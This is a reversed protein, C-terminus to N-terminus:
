VLCGRDTQAMAIDDAYMLLSPHLEYRLQQSRKNSRFTLRISHQFELGELDGPTAKQMDPFLLYLPTDKAGFREMTVRLAVVPDM